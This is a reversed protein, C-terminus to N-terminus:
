CVVGTTDILCFLCLFSFGLKSSKVVETVSISYSRNKCLSVLSHGCHLSYDIVIVYICGDNAFPRIM